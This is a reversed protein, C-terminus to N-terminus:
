ISLQLYGLSPWSKVVYQVTNSMSPGYGQIWGFRSTSWCGGRYGHDQIPSLSFLSIYGTQSIVVGFSPLAWELIDGDNSPWERLRQDCFFDSRVWM